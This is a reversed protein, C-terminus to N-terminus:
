YYNIPNTNVESLHTAFNHFNKTLLDYFFEKSMQESEFHGIDAILIKGDAKFFDHYKFDASIFVDAKQSLADNLLFNGSGGAIAVRSVFSELLKTHRICETNLQTKIWDLFQKEPMEENLTGIVGAGNDKDENKLPYLDYVVEEYPHAKNMAEIVQATKRSPFFTAVRTEEEFHMEGKKGSYPDSGEGPRFTGQGHLNYSCQDYDGIVGAGAEFVARRVQDAHDHPVFFVLKVLDNQRPRLIQQNKLGLRDAMMFNFGNKLNDLNTHAAYIALDNKIARIVSREVHSKGTLSKLGSFILPHHALIFNAGKQRAEEIVAETVDVSVLVGSLENDTNGLLLGSNDYDEQLGLPIATNLYEVLEKIQM